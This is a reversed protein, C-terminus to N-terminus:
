SKQLSMKRVVLFISFLIFAPIIRYTYKLLIICAIMLAAFFLFNIGAEVVTALSKPIGQLLSRLIRGGDLPYVPILNYVGQVVGCLALIPFFRSISVLMLSGAPGAAACIVAHIKHMPEGCIKAGFVGLTIDYIRYNFVRLAVIHCLEHFFMAVMWAFVWKLSLLLFSAAFFILFQPEVRIRCGM